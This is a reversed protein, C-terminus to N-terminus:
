ETIIEKGYVLAVQLEARCGRSEKWNKCLYVADCELLASVCLGMAENYPVSPSKVIDFPTVVEYGKQALNTGVVFAHNRQDNYNEGTVPISVYIKEM